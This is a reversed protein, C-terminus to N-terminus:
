EGYRAAACWGWRPQPIYGLPASGQRTSGQTCGGCGPLLALAGGCVVDVLLTQWAGRWVDAAGLLVGVSWGVSLGSLHAGNM